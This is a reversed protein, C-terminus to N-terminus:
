ILLTPIEYTFVTRHIYTLLFMTQLKTKILKQLNLLIINVGTIELRWTNQAELLSYKLINKIKIITLSFNISRNVSKFKNWLWASQYTFNHSPFSTILQCEKRESERVLSIMSVPVKYKIIKFIKMTCRQRYLNEVTLLKM